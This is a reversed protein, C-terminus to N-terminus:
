WVGQNSSILTQQIAGRGSVVDRSGFSVPEVTLTRSEGQSDILEVQMPRVASSIQLSIIQRAHEVSPPPSIFEPLAGLSGIDLSEVPTQAPVRQRTVFALDASRRTRSERAKTPTEARSPSLSQKNVSASTLEQSKEVNVPLPTESIVLRESAPIMTTQSSTKQLYLAAAFALALCGALSLWATGPVFKPWGWGGASHRESKEAALRARLRFEFDAPA